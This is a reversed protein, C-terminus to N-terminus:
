GMYEKAEEKSNLVMMVGEVMALLEDEGPYIYVPAFKQVRRKVLETFTKSYALGGTLAIGEVEGELAAVMAGIQKAVQYAMAEVILKGYEDGKSIKQEVERLDKTGLHMQMGSQSMVLTYVEEKTYSQSFCLEIVASSPLTGAREPSFPGDGASADNVDIAKGHLHASVSIGGGLHAVVLRSKDYELKLERSLRRAVFKSNLAHFVSRRQVGKIGTIKALPIMEDVVVPDVVYAPIGLEQGLEYGIIGGLSSAHRTGDGHTLDFFLKENVLYTGSEVPKVIGCRGVIAKLSYLSIGEEKLAELIFSKRMEKQEVINAYEKLESYDYRITKELLWREEEYVGVKTSTSGPNIVLIRQKSEVM